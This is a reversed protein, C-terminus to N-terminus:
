AHADGEEIPIVNQYLCRHKEDVKLDFHYHGFYWKVYETKDKIYELYDTLKDHKKFSYNGIVRDHISNPAEHTIIYDVSWNNEKLNNIGTQFETENPIEEPWWSTGPTRYIKDISTGGGMTFIKKGEITFVQGRTLHLVSPRIRHVLGGNWEELPYDYILPFAEHNGDVFLYTGKRLNLMDLDQQEGVSGSWVYGFDGCIIIYDDEKLLKTNLKLGDYGGHTDGTVYIM